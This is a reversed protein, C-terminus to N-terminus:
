VYVAGIIDISSIQIKCVIFLEFLLQDALVAIGAAFQTCVSRNKKCYLIHMCKQNGAVIFVTVKLM